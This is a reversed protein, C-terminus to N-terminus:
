PADGVEVLSDLADVHQVAIVCRKLGIRRGVAADKRRHPAHHNVLLVFGLPTSHSKRAQGRRQNAAPLDTETASAGVSNPLIATLVDVVSLSIATSISGGDAFGSLSSRTANRWGLRRFGLSTVTLPFGTVTSPSNNVIEWGDPRRCTTAFYAWYHIPHCNTLAGHAPGDEAGTAEVLRAVLLSSAKTSQASRSREWHISQSGGINSVARTIIAPGLEPLPFVHLSGRRNLYAEAAHGRALLVVPHNTSARAAIQHIDMSQHFVPGAIPYFPDSFVIFARSVLSQNALETPRTKGFLSTTSIGRRGLKDFARPFVIRFSM